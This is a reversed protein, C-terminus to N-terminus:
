KYRYHIYIYLDIIHLITCFYMYLKMLNKGVSAYM